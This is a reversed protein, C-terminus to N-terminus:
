SGQAQLTNGGVAGANSAAGPQITTVHSPLSHTLKSHLVCLQRSDERCTSSVWAKRQVLTIRSAEPMHDLM